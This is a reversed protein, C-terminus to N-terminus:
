RISESHTKLKRLKSEDLPYVKGTESQVRMKEVLFRGDAGQLNVLSTRIKGTWANSDPALFRTFSLGKWIEDDHIPISKELDLLILPRVRFRVVFPDEKPVFIPTHDIHLGETVELVGFWRSLRTMYCVFFDGINIRKATAKQHIRFGSINRPSRMFAGYTEPSFINIIYAMAKLKAPIDKEKPGRISTSSLFSLNNAGLNEASTFARWSSM